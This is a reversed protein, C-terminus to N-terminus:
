RITRLLGLIAAKQANTANAAVRKFERYLEDEITRVSGIQEEAIQIEGSSTPLDARRRVVRGGMDGYWLWHGTIGLQNVIIRYAHPHPYRKGSKIEGPTGIREWSYYTNIHVRALGQPVLYQNLLEVMRTASYGAEKRADRLRGGFTILDPM